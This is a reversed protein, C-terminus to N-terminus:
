PAPKDEQGQWPVDLERRAIRWAGDVREYRDLYRIYMVRDRTGGTGDDNFHHATCYTEGRLVGDEDWRRSQGVLHFTREYRELGHMAEVISARGERTGMPTVLVADQTFLPGMDDFRRSDAFSAYSAVLDDLQRHDDSTLDM